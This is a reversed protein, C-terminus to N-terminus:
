APAGAALFHRQFIGHLHTRVPELTMRGVVADVFALALLGRAEAAAIGRSRLYFLATPDLQGTTAGHSCKVDDAYIELEPRADIEATPSLLLNRSSQRADTKQAAQHVIVRGNFIGRGRGDALGRYDESSTTRPVLHEICTRTDLHQTGNALFVGNLEAHAGSGALRVALDLRGLLSGLALTHSRVTANRELQAHLHGFHLVQLGDQQLRYHEVQAGEDATVQTVANVVQESKDASVYHEVLTVRSNRGARVIFRPSVLLKSAGSNRLVVYLPADVTTNEAVDVVLGEEVFAHNLLAFRSSPDSGDTTLLGAAEEPAERLLQQLSRVRVGPQRDLASAASLLRGNGFELCQWDPVSLTKLSPEEVALVPDPLSLLRSEFRRLNTYKWAEDRAVPLGLALFQELAEYQGAVAPTNRAAFLSQLRQLSPPLAPLPVASM